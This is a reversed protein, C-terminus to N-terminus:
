VFIKLPFFNLSYFNFFKKLIQLGVVGCLFLLPLKLFLLCPTSSQIIHMLVSFMDAQLSGFIQAMM